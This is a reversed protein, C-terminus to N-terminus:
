LRPFANVGQVGSDLHVVVDRHHPLVDSWCVAHMAQDFQTLILWDIDDRVVCRHCVNDSTESILLEFIELLADHGDELSSALGGTALVIDLDLVLVFTLTLDVAHGFQASALIARFIHSM